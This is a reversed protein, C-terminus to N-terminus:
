KFITYTDLLAQTPHEGPGDGANIIPVSSVLSANLASGVEYHRMVICDAYGAITRVTDEVTEGKSASSFQEANETSIVSAGLKAAAAEFSLRTRTSPEYFLTSIVRGQLVLSGGKKVVKEMKDAEAFVSEMLPRRFQHAGVVHFPRWIMAKESVPDELYTYASMVEGDKLVVPVVVRILTESDPTYGWTRDALKLKSWFVLEPWCLVHGKVIDGSKGTATAANMHGPFLRAGYLRADVETRLGQTLRGGVSWRTNEGLPGYAFLCVPAKGKPPQALQLLNPGRPLLVEDIGLKYRVMKQLETRSHAILAVDDAYLLAKIDNLRKVDTIKLASALRDCLEDM